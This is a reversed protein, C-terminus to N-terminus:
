RGALGQLRALLRYVAQNQLPEQTSPPLQVPPPCLYERLLRDFAGPDGTHPREGYEDWLEEIKANVVQGGQLTITAQM